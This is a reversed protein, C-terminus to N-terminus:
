DLEGEAYVRMADRLYVALGPADRDISASFRPDDVYLEGLGIYAQRDPEWFHRIWAHHEAVAAQVAADDVAAGSRMLEAIRGNVATGEAMVARQRDADWGAVRRQSEAATDGWRERAEAAYPDDAFGEFLEEAAMEEGGQREEITRAVTAALRRLRMSESLLREHHRRLAAVEDTDGDLVSGIDPLGLGLERLLLIHQLRQLEPRGYLRVGGHGTAVPRLLGTHDYHRLTRSSVRAM